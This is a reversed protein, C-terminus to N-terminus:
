GRPGLALRRAVVRYVDPSFGLGVHTSSVEVHEVDPSHRDICAAWAVVGDAKSYIATVPTRLPVANRQAVDAEIEDLDIGQEAYYPAVATYKPGGVVPTGFTVVREVADPCERAAERALYGGLSWGVLRVPRGAQDAAESAVRAVRPILEPVNGDNRGLGWGRAPHGLARLYGRLLLTTEDGTGFGPFVLVPAGDGRPERVLRPANWLLRPLEVLAQAERALAMAGPREPAELPVDQVEDRPDAHAM